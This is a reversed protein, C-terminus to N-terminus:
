VLWGNWQEVRSVFSLIANIDFDIRNEDDFRNLLFRMEKFAFFCFCFIKHSFCFLVIVFYQLHKNMNM